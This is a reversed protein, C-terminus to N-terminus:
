AADVQRAALALAQVQGASGVEVALEEQKVVRQRRDVVVCRVVDKVVQQNVRQRVLGDDQNCM